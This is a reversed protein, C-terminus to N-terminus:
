AFVLLRQKPSRRKQTNQGNGNIVGANTIGDSSQENELWQGGVLNQDDEVTGDDGRFNNGEEYANFSRNSKKIEKERLLRELRTRLIASSHNYNEFSMDRIQLEAQM